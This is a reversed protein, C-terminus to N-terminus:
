RTAGHALSSLSRRQEVQGSAAEWAMGKDAKVGPHARSRAQVVDPGASIRWRATALDM